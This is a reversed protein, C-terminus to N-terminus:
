RRRQPDKPLVAVKREEYQYRGKEDQVTPTREVGTTAYVKYWQQGDRSTHTTYHGSPREFQQANYMAFQIQGRGPIIERGTIKGGGIEVGTTRNGMQGALVRNIAARQISPSTPVTADAAGASAAGSGSGAAQAAIEADYGPSVPVADGGEMALPTTPIPADAPAGGSDFGDMSASAPISVGDPMGQAAPSSAFATDEETSPAAAGSFEGGGEGAFYGGLAESAQAGSIVGPHQGTAVSGIVQSAFGGDQGLSSRYMAAGIGSAVGGDATGTVAGAAANQVSRSVAGALGGSLGGAAAAGDAGNRGHLLAGVGGDKLAKGMDLGRMAMLAETLLSGQPRGVGLGLAQMVSDLKTSVKLFAIACLFWVVLNGTVTEKGQAAVAAEVEEETLALAPLACLLSLSLFFPLLSLFKKM